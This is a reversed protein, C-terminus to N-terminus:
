LGDSVRASRGSFSFQRSLRQCSWHRKPVAFRAIVAHRLVSRYTWRGNPIWQTAGKASLAARRPLTDQGPTNKQNHIAHGSANLFSAQVKSNEPINRRSTCLESLQEYENHMGYGSEMMFRSVRWHISIKFILGTRPFPKYWTHNGNSSREWALVAYCIYALKLCVFSCVRCVRYLLYEGSRPFVCVVFSIFFFVHRLARVSLEWLNQVTKNRTHVCLSRLM